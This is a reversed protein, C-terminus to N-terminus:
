TTTKKLKKSAKSSASVDVEVMEVKEEEKESFDTQSKSGQILQFVPADVRIKTLDGEAVAELNSTFLQKLTEMGPGMLYDVFEVAFHTLGEVRFEQSFTELIPRYQDPIKDGLLPLVAGILISFAARGDETALLASIQEVTKSKDEGSKNSSLFDVVVKQLMQGTKKVAVRKATIGLDTTLFTPVLKTETPVVISSNGIPSSQLKKVEFEIFKRYDQVVEEWDSKTYEVGNIFYPDDYEFMFIDKLIDPEIVEIAMGNINHTDGNNNVHVILLRTGLLSTKVAGYNEIDEESVTVCFSYGKNKYIDTINRCEFDYFSIEPLLKAREILKQKEEQSITM